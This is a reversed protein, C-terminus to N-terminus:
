AEKMEWLLAGDLSEIRAPQNLISFEVGDGVALDACSDNKGQKVPPKIIEAVRVICAYHELYNEDDAELGNDTEFVGLNGDTKFVCGNVCYILMPMNNKLCKNMVSMLETYEM